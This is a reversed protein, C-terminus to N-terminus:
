VLNFQCCSYFSYFMGGSQFFNEGSSAAVTSMSQAEELGDNFPHRLVYGRCTKNKFDGMAFNRLITVSSKVLNIIDKSVPLYPIYGLLSPLTHVRTLFTPYTGFLLFTPLTGQYAVLLGNSICLYPLIYSAHLLWKNMPM